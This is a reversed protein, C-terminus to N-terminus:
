NKHLEFAFLAKQVDITFLNDRNVIQTSTDVMAELGGQGVLEMTQEMDKLYRDVTGSVQTVAQASSTRASHVLASRYRNLFLLICCCLIVSMVGVVMSLLITTTRPGRRPTGEM